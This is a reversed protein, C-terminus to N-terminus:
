YCYRSTPEQLPQPKKFKRNKSGKRWYSEPYCNNYALLRTQKVKDPGEDPTAQQQNDPSDLKYFEKFNNLEKKLDEKEKREEDGDAGVLRQWTDQLAGIHDDEFKEPEKQQLALIQNLEKELNAKEYDVAESIEKSKNEVIRIKFM